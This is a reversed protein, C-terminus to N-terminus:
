SDYPASGRGSAPPSLHVIADALKELHMGRSGKVLVVAGTEGELRRALDAAIDDQELFCVRVDGARRFAATAREGVPYFLRIPLGLALRAVDDHLAAAGEGLGLMDGFVVARVTSADGFSALARLAAAMSTPNANYVDDLLLGFRVPRPELRHPVPRFTAARREITARPVGLRVACLAALLLNTANQEGVLGTELRLPPDDVTLSLRPVASVLRGRVDGHALGVTVLRPRPEAAALALLEPSDANVFAIADPLLSRVLDWKENAVAETTGFAELHSHGVSTVLGVSPRLLSALLAIDGPRDAGLEFVGLEAGRPMALLALPLGIETNYNEQATHVAFTEGSLHAVLGKTTTKGNSGTVAVIPISFGDRWARALVQLAVRVDDVVIHPQPSGRRPHSDSVVVGCAGRALADDIFAHGDTRAGPLAFFLDGPAARRSDAVFGAPVGAGDGTLRGGVIRAIEEMSFM